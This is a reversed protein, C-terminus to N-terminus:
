IHMYSVLVSACVIYMHTSGPVAEGICGGLNICYM